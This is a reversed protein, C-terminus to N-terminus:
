AAGRLSRQLSRPLRSALLGADVARAVSPDTAVEAVVPVGLVAEIDGRDLARGPENVLVAGSPRIPAAVARRLALYCPRTVLLSTTAAAAVALEASGTSLTGCDVVVTRDDAGLLAVLLEARDGVMGPGDGRPLLDLGPAVAVEIRALADAPVEAGAASWAAVGPGSPDPLGLAAPADGALDVLLVGPGPRAALVLALSVAVVTTGSGGKASWCSM